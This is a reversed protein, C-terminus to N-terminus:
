QGFGYPLKGGDPIEWKLDYSVKALFLGDPSAAPGALDRNKARLIEDIWDPHKKGLGVDVLSGVINRVMHQLFANATIDIRVLSDHQAINLSSVERVTTTSQCSSSRFSSFDHLGILYKSAIRMSRISLKKKYWAVKKQLLGPRQLRNLILYTYTRSLASYRAHFDKGVEKAWVVSIGGAVLSNTGEVWTTLERQTSTDFHIVQSLAHVGADTRGASVVKIKQNALGTLATEVNDQVTCGEPQTQWGNFGSGDYELGLALRYHNEPTAM